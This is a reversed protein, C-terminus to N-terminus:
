EGCKRSATPGFGAFKAFADGREEFNKFHTYSAAAPSLLVVGNEPTIRRAIEVAQQLSSAAELRSEPIGHELLASEIEKGNEPMTVFAFPPASVIKEAFSKWNQGRNM